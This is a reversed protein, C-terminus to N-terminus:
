GIRRREGVEERDGAVRAYDGGDACGNVIEVPEFLDPEPIHARARMRRGLDTLAEALRDATAADECHIGLSGGVCQVSLWDYQSDDTNKNIADTTRIHLSANLSM